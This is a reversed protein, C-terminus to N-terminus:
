APHMQPVDYGTTIVAGGLLYGSLREAHHRSPLAESPAKNLIM